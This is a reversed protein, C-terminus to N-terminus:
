LMYVYRKFKIKNEEHKAGSSIGQSEIAIEFEQYRCVISKFETDRIEKLMIKLCMDVLCVYKTLINSYLDNVHVCYAFFFFVGTVCHFYFLLVSFGRFLM